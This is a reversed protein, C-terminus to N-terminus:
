AEIAVVDTTRLPHSRIRGNETPNQPTAVPSTEHYSGSNSSRVLISVGYMSQRPPNMAATDKQAHIPLYSPISALTRIAPMIGKATGKEARTNTKASCINEIVTQLNRIIASTGLSTM